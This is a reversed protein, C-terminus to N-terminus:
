ERAIRIVDIRKFPCATRDNLKWDLRVNLPFSEKQLDIGSEEPISDFEYESSDIRIYWGGCCVCDRLDPGLIIGKSGFRETEKSCMAIGSAFLLFVVLGIMNRKGPNSMVKFKRYRLNLIGKSM